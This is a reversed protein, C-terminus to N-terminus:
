PRDGRKSNLDAPWRALPALSRGGQLARLSATDVYVREEVIRGNRLRMWDVGRWEFPKGAVTFRNRFEFAVGDRHAPWRVMTWNLEPNRAFQGRTLAAIEDGKINRDYLPDILVGDPQWLAALADPSRESWAAGYRQVFIATDDRAASAAQPAVVLVLPALMAILKM